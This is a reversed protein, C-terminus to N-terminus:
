KRQREILNFDNSSSKQKKPNISQKPRNIHHHGFLKLPLVHCTQPSSDYSGRGLGESLDSCTSRFLLLSQVTSMWKKCQIVWKRLSWKTYRHIDSKHDYTSALTALLFIFGVSMWRHAYGFLSKSSKYSYFVLVNLLNPSIHNIKM